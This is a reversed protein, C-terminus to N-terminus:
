SSLHRIPAEMNHLSICTYTVSKNKINVFLVYFILCENLMTSHEM